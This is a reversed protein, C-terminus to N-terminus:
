RQLAPTHKKPAGPRNRGTSSLTQRRAEVVNSQFRQIFSADDLVDCEISQVVQHFESETLDSSSPRLYCIDRVLPAKRTIFDVKAGKHTSELGNNQRLSAGLKAFWFKHRYLYTFEFYIAFKVVAPNTSLKWSTVLADRLIDFHLESTCHALELIEKIIESKEEDGCKLNENVKRIIHAYNEKSFTNM